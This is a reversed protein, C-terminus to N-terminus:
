SFFLSIRMRIRLAIYSFKKPPACTLSTFMPRRSSSLPYRMLFSACVSRRNQEQGMFPWTFFNVISFSVKKKLHACQYPTFIYSIIPCLFVACPCVWYLYNRTKKRREALGCPHGFDLQNHRYLWGSIKLIDWHKPFFLVYTPLSNQVCLSSYYPANEPQAGRVHREYCQLATRFHSTISFWVCVIFHEARNWTPMPYESSLEWM